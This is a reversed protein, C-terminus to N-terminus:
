DHDPSLTEDHAAIAALDSAISAPTQASPFLALLRGSPGILYCPIAQDAAPTTAQVPMGLATRLRQMEGATGSLPRLVPSLRDFDLAPTSDEPQTALVLLLREQLDPNDALRNHIEIMRTVAPQGLAQNPDDFSLLTWHGVLHETTFPQGATDRLTFEPLPRAPRILVGEIALPTSTARQYQNGWYYGVLFLGIAAVALALRALIGRPVQM